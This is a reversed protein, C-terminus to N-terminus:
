EELGFHKKVDAICRRVEMDERNHDGMFRRNLVNACEEIILKAFERTKVISTYNPIRAGPALADNTDWQILDAQKALEFILQNM